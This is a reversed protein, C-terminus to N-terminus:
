DPPLAPFEAARVRALATAFSNPKGTEFADSGDGWAEHLALLRPLLPRFQPLLYPKRWRAHDFELLLADCRRVFDVLAECGREANNLCAVAARVSEALEAPKPTFIKTAVLARCGLALAAPWAGLPKWLKSARAIDDSEILDLMAVIPGADSRAAFADITAGILEAAVSRDLPACRARRLADCAADARAFMPLHAARRELAYPAMGAVHAFTPLERANIGGGIRLAGAMGVLPADFVALAHSPPPQYREIESM